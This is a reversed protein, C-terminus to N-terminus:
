DNPDRVSEGLVAARAGDRNGYTRGAIGYGGATNEGYVGSAHYAITSGQVGNATNSIGHVGNARDSQGEVGNGVGRNVGHIATGQGAPGVTGRVAV